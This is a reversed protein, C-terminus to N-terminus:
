NKSFIGDVIKGKVVTGDSCTCTINTANKSDKWLGEYTSGGNISEKGYGCWTKNKWEGEYSGWSYVQKGFLKQDDKWQGQFVSGNASYYTGYGNMKDNEWEGEYRSGDTWFFAGHGKRVDEEWNGEYRSGSNWFYKGFGSRLGEKDFYGEYRGNDYSEKKFTLNLEQRQCNSDEIFKGDVIKGCVKVGNYIFYVPSASNDSTWNGEFVKGDKTTEKGNGFRHDDKWLGEYRGWSAAYIGYGHKLDNVWDGEYVTGSEWCYKGKGHRLENEFQGEYFGNDYVDKGYGNRDTDPVFTKDKIKGCAKRGKVSKIIDTGNDAGNWNGEYTVGTNHVEKGKGYWEGDKWNGEYYGWQYIEKGYGNEKDNKWNGDYINGNKFYMIGHGNKLDNSWQGVYKAGSAYYYTGQGSFKRHSFSGVYKDGTDWFFTGKGHEEGSSNVEGEYYGNNYTIRSM